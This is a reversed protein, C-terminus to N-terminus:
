LASIVAGHAGAPNLRIGVAVVVVGSAHGLAGSFISCVKLRAPPGREERGEFEDAVFHVLVRAPKQTGEHVVRVEVLPDVGRARYAWSEGTDM